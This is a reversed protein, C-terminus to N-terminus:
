CSQSIISLISHLTQPTYRNDRYAVTNAETPTYYYAGSPTYWYNRSPILMFAKYGNITESSTDDYVLDEIDYFSSEEGFAKKQFEHPQIVVGLIDDQIYYDHEGSPIIMTMIFNIITDDIYSKYKTQITDHPCPLTFETRSEVSESVAEQHPMQNSIITYVHYMRSASDYLVYATKYHVTQAINYIGMRYIYKSIPNMPNLCKHHRHSGSGITAPDDYSAASASLSSKEDDDDDDHHHHNDTHDSHQFENANNEDDDYDHSQLELLAQVAATDAAAEDKFALARSKKKKSASASAGDDQPKNRPSYVKYTRTNAEIFSHTVVKVRRPRKNSDPADTSATIYIEENAASNNYQQQQKQSRTKVPM